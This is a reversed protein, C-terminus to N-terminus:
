FETIQAPVNAAVVAYPDSAEGPGVANIATVKFRYTEGPTSVSVTHSRSGSTTSVLTTYTNVADGQNWEISYDTIPLGGDAPEQWSITISTSSQSVTALSTVKSPLDASM